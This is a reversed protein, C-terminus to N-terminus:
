MDLRVDFKKLPFHLSIQHPHPPLPSDRADYCYTVDVFRRAHHLLGNIGAVSISQATWGNSGEPSTWTVGGFAPARSPAPAHPFCSDTSSVIGNEQCSLVVIFVTQCSPTVRENNRVRFKKLPVFNAPCSKALKTQDWFTVVKLPIQLCWFELGNIRKFYSLSRIEPFKRCMIKHKWLLVWCSVDTQNSRFSNLKQRTM